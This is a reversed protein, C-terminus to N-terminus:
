GPEAAAEPEFAELVAALESRRGAIGFLDAIAVVAM